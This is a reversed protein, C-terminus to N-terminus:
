QVPKSFEENFMTYLALVPFVQCHFSNNQSGPLNSVHEIKSLLEVTLINNQLIIQFIADKQITTHDCWQLWALMTCYM